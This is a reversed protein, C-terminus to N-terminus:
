SQDRRGRSGPGSNTGDNRGAGRLLTKGEHLLPLEAAPETTQRLAARVMEPNHEPAVLMFVTLATRSLHRALLESAMGADRSVCADVIERHEAAGISWSRPGQTIYVRRYRESHDIAQEIARLMRQGAHAVLALHFQRHVEEWREIDVGALEDLDHLLIELGELDEDTFRPVSVSVSLAETVIRTAYLQELDEVSFRAVRARHNVEAEILGERQLMRLAERVPGRSVGYQKAIQVQSLWTGATLDSRLIAERLADHVVVTSDRSGPQHSSTSLSCM